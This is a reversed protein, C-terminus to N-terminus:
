ANPAGEGDAAAARAKRELRRLEDETSPAASHAAALGEGPAGGPGEYAEIIRQVLDHRVVDHKELVCFGVGPVRRLRRAADILGSQTPDPLDIQTVDGTVIMTSRQGMRTLFMQMQGRTTNQAEDLIIVADNLTRGRMFALPVVEIVDSALFKKITDYDLMDTLADLLPRLYPNVKDFMDGPLFGLKEGAEVAPRALVARRVRGTKLQHVAAAVALFTKGTGAPGVGFVLDSTFIADLYAQQNASSAVVPRGGARVDLRGSWPATVTGDADDVPLGSGNGSAAAAHRPGGAERRWNAEAIRELVQARGLPRGQEAADILENVVHRAARAADAEGEIRVDRGRAAVRVGMAERIMKLHRDAPGFISLRDATDPLTITLTVAVIQALREVGARRPAARGRSARAAFLAARGRPPPVPGTSCPLGDACRAPDGGIERAARGGRALSAIM